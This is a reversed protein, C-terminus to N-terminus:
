GYDALLFVGMEIDDPAGMEGLLAVLRAKNDDIKKRVESWQIPESGWDIAHALEIGFAFRPNDYYGYTFTECGYREILKFTGYQVEHDSEEDGLLDSYKALWDPVGHEHDECIGTDVGYILYAGASHGMTDEEYVENDLTATKTGVIPLVVVAEDTPVMELIYRTLLIRRDRGAPLRDYLDPDYDETLIMSDLRTVGAVVGDIAQVV